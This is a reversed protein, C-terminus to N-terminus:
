LENGEMVNRTGPCKEQSEFHHLVQHIVSCQAVVSLFYDHDSESLLPFTSQFCLLTLAM